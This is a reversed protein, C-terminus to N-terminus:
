PYLVVSGVSGKEGEKIYGISCIRGYTGEFSMGAHIDDDSLGENRKLKRLIGLYKERHAEDCPITEIDFFLKIM